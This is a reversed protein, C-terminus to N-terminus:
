KCKVSYWMSLYDLEQTDNEQYITSKTLLMDAKDMVILNHATVGATGMVAVNLAFPRFLLETEEIKRMQTKVIECAEPSAEKPQVFTAIDVQAKHIEDAQAVIKAVIEPTLEQASTSHALGFVFALAVAGTALYKRAAHKAQERPMISGFVKKAARLQEGRFLTYTEALKTDKATHGISANIAKTLQGKIAPTLTIKM